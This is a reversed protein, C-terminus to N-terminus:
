GFIFFFFFFSNVKMKEKHSKLKIKHCTVLAAPFSKFKCEREETSVDKLDLGCYTSLQM